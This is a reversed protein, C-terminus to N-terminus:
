KLLINNIKTFFKDHGLMNLHNVDGQHSNWINYLDILTSDFQYLKSYDFATFHYTKHQKTIRDIDLCILNHLYSYYVPDFINLFYDYAVRALNDKHRHYEVDSFLLDSQQHFNDAHMTNSQKCYVRNPSTHFILVADYNNINCSEIQLKIKYEGCGCQSLNDVNYLQALRTPWSYAIEHNYSFSDGCLLLKM